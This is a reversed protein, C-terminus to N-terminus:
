LLSSCLSSCPKHEELARTVSNQQTNITNAVPEIISEVDSFVVIPAFWRAQVNKFEFNQQEAKPMKIIAQTNQHCIEEHGEHRDLSTSIHFCNRCLHNDIRQHKELYKHILAKINTIVVYHHMSGDSLLLLDLNFNYNKNNSIRFPILKKNSHRFVNVRVMNLLEFKEMQHFAMPMMFEGAAQKEGPNESSYMIPNTKQRWSANAPIM